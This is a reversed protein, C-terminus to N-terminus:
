VFYKGAFAALLFEPDSCAVSKAATESLISRISLQDRHVTGIM